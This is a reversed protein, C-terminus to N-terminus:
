SPQRVYLTLRALYTSSKPAGIEIDVRRMSAVATSSVQEKWRWDREAFQVTGETTSVAPWTRKLYIATAREQAVWMALTRDRLDATVDIAQGMARLVAALAIALIALAVLVEVLTFGDIRKHPANSRQRRRNFKVM